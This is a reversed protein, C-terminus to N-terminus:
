IKKLLLARGVAYCYLSAPKFKFKVNDSKVVEEIDISTVSAEKLNNQHCFKRVNVLEKPNEAYRNTWKIEVIWQPKQENNICVIDVEGNKWRAYYLPINEVHQWQSYIATEVMNGIANDNKKIPSFLASRLSPNTLYVKFFNARKFKKASFDVRYVIKILFAAELYTIYKKITNKAVGSTQSLEDLSFENGSNYAISTFLSNLEQIDQIGYLIP